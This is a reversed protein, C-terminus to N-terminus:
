LSILPLFTCVTDLSGGAGVTPCTQYLEVEANNLTPDNLGRPAHLAVPAIPVARYSPCDTPM